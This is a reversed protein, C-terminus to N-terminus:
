HYIVRKQLCIMYSIRPGNGTTTSSASQGILKSLSSQGNSQIKCGCKRRFASGRGASAFFFWSSRQPRLTASQEAQVATPINNVSGVSCQRYRNKSAARWLNDITQLDTNAIFKVETFYVWTRKEADPGALTILAARTLDDALQFDGLQLADRLNTYDMDAQLCICSKSCANVHLACCCALERLETVESALEVGEVSGPPEPSGEKQQTQTSSGHLSSSTSLGEDLGAAATLVSSRKQAHGRLSSQQLHSKPYHRLNGSLTSPRQLLVIPVVHQPQVHFGAQLLCTASQM